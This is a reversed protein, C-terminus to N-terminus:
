HRQMAAEALHEALAEYRRHFTTEPYEQEVERFERQLRKVDAAEMLTCAVNFLRQEEKKMHERTFRAFDEVLSRIAALAEPVGHEAAPLHLRIAELQRRATEHENMFTGLPGRELPVGKEWLLPFLREEEKALHCRGAFNSLFDLAGEFFERVFPQEDLTESKTELATIVQEILRHESILVQLSQAATM